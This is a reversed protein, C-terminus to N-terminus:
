GSAAMVAVDVLQKKTTKTEREWELDMLGDLVRLGGGEREAQGGVWDLDNVVADCRLPSPTTL